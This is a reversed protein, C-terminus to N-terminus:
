CYTKGLKIHGYQKIFKYNLYNLIATLIVGLVRSNYYTLYITWLLAAAIAILMWYVTSEPLEQGWRDILSGNTNINGSTELKM